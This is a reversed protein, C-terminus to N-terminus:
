RKRSPNSSRECTRTGMHAMSRVGDSSSALLVERIEVGTKHAYTM